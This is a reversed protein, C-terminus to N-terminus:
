GDTVEDMEANKTILVKALYIHGFIGAAMFYVVIWEVSQLGLFQM